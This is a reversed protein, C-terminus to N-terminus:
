ILLYSDHRKDNKHCPCLASEEKVLSVTYLVVRM